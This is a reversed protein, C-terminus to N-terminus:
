NSSKRKKYELLVAWPFEKIETVKGGFIRDQADYGCVPPKPVKAKLAKLWEPEAKESVATTTDEEEIVASETTTTEAPSEEDEDNACCVYPIKDKFECQSRRLFTKVESSIPRTDLM